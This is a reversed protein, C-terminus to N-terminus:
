EPSICTGAANCRGACAYVDCSAACVDLDSSFHHCVSGLACEATSGETSCAGHPDTMCIGGLCRADFGDPATCDAEEHCAAGLSKPRVPSTAAQIPDAHESLRRALDNNTVFWSMDLEKQAKDALARCDQSPLPRFDSSVRCEDLGADFM